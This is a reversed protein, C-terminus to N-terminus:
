CLGRLGWRLQRRHHGRLGAGRMEPPGDRRDFGLANRWRRRTIENPGSTLGVGSATDNVPYYVGHRSYFDEQGKAIEMAYQELKTIKARKVQRNFAVGALSALVGIIAVVIMLEVLTMGRRAKM